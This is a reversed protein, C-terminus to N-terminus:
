DGGVDGWRLVIPARHDPDGGHELLQAPKGFGRDALWTAAEMRQAVKGNPDNMVSLMFDALLVGDKTQARVYTM